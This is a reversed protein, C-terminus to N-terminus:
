IAKKTEFSDRYPTTTDPHFGPQLIGNRLTPLQIGAQLAITQLAVYDAMLRNNTELLNSYADRLRNLENRTDALDQRYALFLEKYNDPAPQYTHPFQALTDTEDLLPEGSGELIYDRNVTPFTELIKSLTDSPIGDSKTNRLSTVWGDSKGISSCFQRASIGLASIVEKVRLYIIKEQM